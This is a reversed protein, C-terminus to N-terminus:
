TSNATYKIGLLKSLEGVQTKFIKVRVYNSNILILSSITQRIVFCVINDKGPIVNGHYRTFM